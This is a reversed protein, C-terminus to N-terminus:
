QETMLLSVCDMRKYILFKIKYSQYLNVLHESSDKGMILAIPQSADASNPLPETIIPTIKHESDLNEKNEYIELVVFMYSIMNNVNVNGHQNYIPHKGSGDCGDKIICKYSMSKM